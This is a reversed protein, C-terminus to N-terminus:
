NDKGIINYFIIKLPYIINKFIIRFIKGVANIIKLEINMVINSVFKLYILLSIIMFAYVYSSLHDCRAYLLFTFVVMATLIWFLIDEIVVIIKTVKSGRIIRYLDFMVGTLIGALLAYVIIKFQVETTLPM